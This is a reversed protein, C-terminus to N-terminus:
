KPVSKVALMQSIFGIAWANHVIGVVLGAWFGCLSKMRVACVLSVVFIMGFYILPLIGFLPNFAILAVCASMMLMNLVPIMQRIKPQMRHKLVTRGRGRGYAWYQRALAMPTPRMHYDLRIESELWILGGALGLRHDYEADENHSFRPDYGGIKKFWDLRFGAHHGHDVWFSTRGGRHASGGSGLPTDVIWAAARQFCNAGVADMVTVISAADPQNEFAKVIDAIYGAPYIAHADCRVIIRHHPRAMEDIVANIGASQLKQPNHFLHLDPHLETLRRVIDQTGDTSGGDAVVMMTNNAFSDNQTLSQICREIHTVENLAPIVVLIHQPTYTAVELADGSQLNIGYTM